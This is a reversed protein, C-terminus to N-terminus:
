ARNALYYQYINDSIHLQSKEINDKIFNVFLILAKYRRNLDNVDFSTILVVENVLKNADNPLIKVKPLLRIKNKIDPIPSNIILYLIDLIIEFGINLIRHASIYDNRDLFKHYHTVTKLGKWNDSFEYIVSLEVLALQLRKLM